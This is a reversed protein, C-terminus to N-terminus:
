SVGKYLLIIKQVNLALVSTWNDDLSRLIISHVTFVYKIWVVMFLFTELTSERQM